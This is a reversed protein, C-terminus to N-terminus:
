DGLHPEANKLHWSSGPPAQNLPESVGLSASTQFPSSLGEM